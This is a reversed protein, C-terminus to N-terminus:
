RRSMGSQFEERAISYVVGEEGGCSRPKRYKMGIKELVRISPKNETMARGLIERLNLKRFGHDLCARATETAYGKGWHQRFFRFGLDYENYELTFKLGCWGLFTGTNKELVALRGVGYEVPQDYRNIFNAADEVSEFPTDGTYKMVEPDLNLSYLAEADNSEFHRMLTRQTFIQDASM